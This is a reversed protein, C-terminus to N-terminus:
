QALAKRRKNSVMSAEKKQRLTGVIVEVSTEYRYSYLCWLANVRGIDYCKQRREVAVRAGSISSWRRRTATKDTMMKAVLGPVLWVLSMAVFSAACAICYLKFWRSTPHAMAIARATAAERPRWAGAGARMGVALCLLGVLSLTAAWRMEGGFESYGFIDVDLWNAHFIAISAGLWHLAFTLVLVPSEGPRWLVVCGVVFVALSLLALDFNPGFGSTLLIFAALVLLVPLSQGAPSAHPQRAAAFAPSRAAVSLTGRQSLMLPRTGRMM